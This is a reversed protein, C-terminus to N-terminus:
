KKKQDTPKTALDEIETDTPEDSKRGKSKKPKAVEGPREPSIIAFRGFRLRYAGIGITDGLKHLWDWVAAAEVRETDFTLSLDGTWDAFKPRVAFIRGKSSKNVASRRDIFPHRRIDVNGEADKPGAAWLEDVTRPGKYKLVMDTAQVECAKSAKGGAMVLGSEFNEAPIYPGDDGCYIALDFDLRALQIMKAVTHKDTRKKENAKERERVAPDLRDAGRVSAMLLPIGPKAALKFVITELSM